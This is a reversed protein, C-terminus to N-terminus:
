FLDHISFPKPWQRVLLALEPNVSKGRKCTHPAPRVDQPPVPQSPLWPIARHLRRLCQPPLGLSPMAHQALASCELWIHSSHNWWSACTDTSQRPRSRRLPAGLVTATRGHQAVCPYPAHLLLCVTAGTCLACAHKVDFYPTASYLYYEALQSLHQVSASLHQRPGRLPRLSCAPTCHWTSRKVLASVNVNSSSPCLVRPLSYM